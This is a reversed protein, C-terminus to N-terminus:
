NKLCSNNSISVRSANSIHLCDQVLGTMKNGVISVDSNIPGLGDVGAYLSIAGWTRVRDEDLGPDEIVNNQITANIVGVGEYWKRVDTLLRIPNQRTRTFTNESILANPIQLLLGHCACDHVRNGMVVVRSSLFEVIRLAHGKRVHDPLSGLFVKVRSGDDLFEVRLIKGKAYPIGSQDFLFFHLGVKIQGVYRRLILSLDGRNVDDIEHVHNSLNIADDGTGSIENDKIYVDGGSQSIHIGDWAASGASAGGMVPIIKNSAIAIGRKLQEVAIAVGPTSSITNDVISVDENYTEQDHGGVYIAQGGYWYHSVFFRSELKLSAFVPSVFFRESKRSILAQKQPPVILRQGGRIWSLGGEHIETLEFINDSSPGYPAELQLGRVGGVDKISALSTSVFAYSLNVNKVLLRHSDEIYIGPKNQHFIFRAGGGDLVTDRLGSLLLHAVGDAVTSRFNYVCPSFVIYNAGVRSAEALEAQVFESANEKDSVPCPVQHTKPKKPSPTRVVVVVPEGVVSQWSHAFEAGNVRPAPSVYPHTAVQAWEDQLDAAQSITHISPLIMAWLVVAITALLRKRREISKKLITM